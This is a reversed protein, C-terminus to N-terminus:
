ATGGELGSLAESARAIAWVTPGLYEQLSEGCLLIVNHGVVTSSYQRRPRNTLFVTVVRDKSWGFDSLVEETKQATDSIEQAEQVADVSTLKTQVAVVVTGGDSATLILGFEFGKHNKKDPFVLFNKYKEAEEARPFTTREGEYALPTTFDFQLSKLAENRWEVRIDGLPNELTCYLQHLTLCNYQPAHTAQMVDGRSVAWARSSRLQLEHEALLVEFQKSDLDLGSNLLTPLRNFPQRSLLGKRCDASILRLPPVMVVDFDSNPVRGDVMCSGESMWQHIQSTLPGLPRTTEHVVRGLLALHLAAEEPETDYKRQVLKALGDCVVRLSTTTFVHALYHRTLEIARPLGMSFAALQKAILDASQVGKRVSRYRGAILQLGRERDSDGDMGHILSAAVDEPLPRLMQTVITRGSPSKLLKWPGSRLGTWLVRIRMDSEAFMPRDQLRNVASLFEQFAAKSVYNALNLNEDILLLVHKRQAVGSNNNSSALLQSLLEEVSSPNWDVLQKSMLKAFQQFKVEPHECYSYLLRVWLPLLEDQSALVKDTRSAPTEGNFTLAIPLWEAFQNQQSNLKERLPHESDYAANTLECLFRTKGCGPHGYILLSQYGKSDDALFLHNAVAEVAESDMSYNMSPDGVKITLLSANQIKGASVLQTM